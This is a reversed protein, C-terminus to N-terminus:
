ASDIFARISSVVLEPQSMHACHGVVDMIELTSHPLHQHLYEGVSLPALTDKRHQLILCPVKVQPVDARNDAFFTTEAFVRAIMPDISCFSENLRTVTSSAAASDGAIVPTLFNVWGMFNREMLDLLEELDQQEFGGKYDPPQNVFCPNPGVWIMKKFLGPRAIAALMSISCSVSHGIFIADQTIGQADCVELLDQAYGNLTSYRQANFASPDSKGCGVYDFLVQKCSSEFAPTIADWMNQNCGFGHGYILTNSGHDSTCVNNRKNIDM